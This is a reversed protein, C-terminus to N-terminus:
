DRTGAAFAVDIWVMRHDSAGILGYGQESQTPWLVGQDQLSFRSCPLVYDVRLNGVGRDEFDATDHAANGLQRRNAGADRLTKEVAGRSSPVRRHNLLPHETLQAIAGVRGDGDLPDTNLDGAVIFHAGPELGGRQGQDDYIYDSREPDLYDALLRIEDRNRLGNRDELGDFVPPTPHACLFHVTHRGITIPLDWHSKSSLRLANWTEDDHFPKGTTPILPRQAGPMDKWLFNQLTRVADYQFPYMSFVVMGYQGPFRGFGFADAPGDARGDRDLDLGTPLGTNVPALFVHPYEIPQQGNQGISLYNERFRRAAVRQPDFDFENILLVHPRVRQIIEAVQRAQPDNPSRLDEALQQPAQRFLSANFTAFRFATAPAAISRGPTALLVAFAHWSITKM